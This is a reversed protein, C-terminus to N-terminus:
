FISNQFSLMKMLTNTSSNDLDIKSAKKCCAPAEDHRCLDLLTTGKNYLADTSDPKMKLTADFYKVASEYRGADFLSAGKTMQDDYNNHEEM